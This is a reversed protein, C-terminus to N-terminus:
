DLMFIKRLTENGTSDDHWYQGKTKVSVGVTTIGKYKSKDVEFTIPQANYEFANGLESAAEAEEKFQVSHITSLHINNRNLIIRKEALVTNQKNKFEFRISTERCINFVHPVSTNKLQVNIKNKDSTIELGSIISEYYSTDSVEKKRNKWYTYHTPLNNIKETHCSNCNMSTIGAFDEKDNYNSHHCSTCLLDSSLFVSPKPFCYGELTRNEEKEKFKKSALVDKGNYHCSLCDIGTLREASRPKPDTFFTDTPMKSLVSMPLFEFGAYVDEFLNQPAHCGVCETELSQNVYVTYGPLNYRTSNVYEKHELLTEYAHAHPGFQENKHQEAHCSQCAALMEARSMEKYKAHSHISDQQTENTNYFNCGNYIIIGAVVSMLLFLISQKRIM